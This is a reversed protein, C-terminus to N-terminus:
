GKIRTEDTADNRTFIKDNTADVHKIQLNSGLMKKKM